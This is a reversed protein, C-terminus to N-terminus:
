SLRMVCLWQYLQIMNFWEINHWNMEFNPLMSHVFYNLNAKRLYEEYSRKVEPLQNLLSVDSDSFRKLNLINNTEELFIDFIKNMDNTTNDMLEKLTRDDVLDIFSNLHNYLAERENVSLAIYEGKGPININNNLTRM